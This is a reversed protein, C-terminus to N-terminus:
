GISPFVVLRTLVPITMLVKTCFSETSTKEPGVETMSLIPQTLIRFYSFLTSRNWTERKSCIVSFIIVEHHDGSNNNGKSTKRPHLMVHDNLKGLNPTSYSCLPCPYKAAPTRNHCAEHKTLIRQRQAKFPCYPCTFKFEKMNTSSPKM